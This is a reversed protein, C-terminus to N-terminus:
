VLLPSPKEADQKPRATTLRLFPFVGLEEKRREGEEMRKLQAMEMEEDEDGDDELMGKSNRKGDGRAM